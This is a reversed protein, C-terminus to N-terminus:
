PTLGYGSEGHRRMVISNLRLGQNQIMSTYFYSAWLFHTVRPRNNTVKNLWRDNKIQSWVTLCMNPNYGYHCCFQRKKYKDNRRFIQHSDDYLLVLGIQELGAESIGM